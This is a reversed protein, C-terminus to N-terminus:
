RGSRVARHVTQAAHRPNEAGCIARIAAVLPVGTMIVEGLNDITIGGIAVVPLPAWRCVSTLGAIGVTSDSTKKTTTPFVPGYGILDAGQDVARKAQAPTHTSIGVAKSGMIRKADELEMDDQGLHVGDANVALAIDPRDNVFFPVKAARCMVALQNGLGVLAQDSLNKARLQMVACGGELIESAVEVPDLPGCCSPDLIAYLGRLDDLLTRKM